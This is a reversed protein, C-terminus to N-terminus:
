GHTVKPNVKELVALLETLNEEPMKLLFSMRNIVELQQGVKFTLKNIRLVKRLEDTLPELVAHRSWMSNRGRPDGNRKCFKTELRTGKAQCVILTKTLRVVTYVVVDNISGSVHTTTCVTEGVKLNELWTTHESTWVNM